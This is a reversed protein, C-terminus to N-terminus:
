YQKLKKKYEDIAGLARGFLGKPKSAKELPAVKMPKKPAEEAAVEMRAKALEREFMKDLRRSM